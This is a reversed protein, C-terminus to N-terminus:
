TWRGAGAGALDEGVDLPEAVDVHWLPKGRGAHAGVLDRREVVIRHLLSAVTVGKLLREAKARHRDVGTQAPARGAPGTEEPAEGDALQAPRNRWNSSTRNRPLARGGTIARSGSGRDRTGRYRRDAAPQRM